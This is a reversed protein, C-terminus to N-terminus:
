GADYFGKYRRVLQALCTEDWRQDWQTLVVWAGQGLAWVVLPVLVMRFGRLTLTLLGAYACAALWFVSLFRPAGMTLIREWVARHIPSEYGAILDRRESMTPPYPYPANGQRNLNMM